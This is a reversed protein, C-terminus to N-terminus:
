LCHYIENMKKLFYNFINIYLYIFLYIFLYNFINIFLDVVHIINIKVGILNIRIRQKM